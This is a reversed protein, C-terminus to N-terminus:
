TPRPTVMPHHARFAAEDTIPSNAALWMGYGTRALRQQARTSGAPFPRGRLLSDICLHAANHCSACVWRKNAPVDPGGLYKPQVHHEETAALIIPPWHYRHVSCTAHQRTGALAQM